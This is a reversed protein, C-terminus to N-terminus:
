VRARCSARGIETALNNIALLPSAGSLAKDVLSAGDDTLGTLRRLKDFISKAAELVAHFYNLTYRCYLWVAHQVISPPFHCYKYSIENM